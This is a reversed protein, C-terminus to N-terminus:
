NIVTGWNVMQGKLVAEVHGPEEASIIVAQMPPMALTLRYMERVKTFMGGTVDVGHSGGLKSEVEEWNSRDIDEILEANAYKLPDKDYVGDVQGALIIRNPSLERALNDFLKETSVISMGQAADVSVDGYVVPTLGHNLVEKIPFTEFYMLQEGRTRTSASPQFKIAPVGAQRLIKMVINNLEAAVAAVEAFGLWSDAGVVGQHTQYKAAVEHGFSGSGHGIILQLDDGREDLANKIEAALREIVDTRATFPQTKDTIVSGGLKLLVLESLLTEKSANINVFDQEFSLNLRDYFFLVQLTWYV